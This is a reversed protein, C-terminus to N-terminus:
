EAPEPLDGLERLAVLIAARDLPVAPDWLLEGAPTQRIAAVCFRRILKANDDGVRIRLRESGKRITFAVEPGVEADGARLHVPVLALRNTRAYEMLMEIWHIPNYLTISNSRASSKFPIRRPDLVQRCMEQGLRNMSGPNEIEGPHDGKMPRDDLVPKTKPPIPRPLRAPRLNPDPRPQTM